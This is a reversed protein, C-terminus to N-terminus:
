KGFSSFTRAPLRSHALEKADIEGTKNKDLRDFEEEMFKMWEQKTIKGTKNMNILLLLQEVENQGLALKDPPKLVSDKQAVAIGQMSWIAVSVGFIIIVSTISNKKLMVIERAETGNGNTPQARRPIATPSHAPVFLGTADSLRTISDNDSVLDEHRLRSRWMLM